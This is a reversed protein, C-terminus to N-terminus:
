AAVPKLALTNGRKWLFAVGVAHGCQKRRKHMRAFEMKWTLWQLDLPGWLLCEVPFLSILQQRFDKGDREVWCSRGIWNLMTQWGGMLGSGYHAVMVRVARWSEAERKRVLVMRQRERRHEMVQDWTVTEGDVIMAVNPALKRGSWHEIGKRTLITTV